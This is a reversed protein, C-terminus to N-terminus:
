SINQGETRSGSASSIWGRCQGTFVIRSGCLRRLTLHVLSAEKVYFDTQDLMAPASDLIEEQQQPLGGFLAGTNRRVQQM